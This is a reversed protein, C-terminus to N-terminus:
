DYVRIVIDFAGSEAASPTAADTFTLTIVDASTYGVYCVRTGANVIVFAVTKNAVWAGTKTFTYIGVNSRALTPAAFGPGFTNGLTYAIVPADTSSQTCKYTIEKYPAPLFVGSGM